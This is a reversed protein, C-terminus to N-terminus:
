KHKAFAMSTTNPHIKSETSNLMKMM